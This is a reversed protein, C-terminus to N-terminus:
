LIREMVSMILNLVAVLFIGPLMNINNIKYKGDTILNFGSFFLIIYGMACLQATMSTSFFGAFLYATLAIVVQLVAVPLASLCVVKGYAAGFAVAFPFDVFTKLFLQSSDGNLALLIPGSIQLGGVGFFLATDVFANYTKNSTTSLKSLREEIRLVEGIKSGILFSFLVILLNEGAASKGQVHYINEIFGALSVIMIAIALVSYNQRGMWRQLKGGFLGGIAIGLADTIIGM